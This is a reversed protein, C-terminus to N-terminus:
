GLRIHVREVPTDSVLVAGFGAVLQVLGSGVPLRAVVRGTRPDVREIAELDIDAVWVSGFGLGLGVSSALVGTV